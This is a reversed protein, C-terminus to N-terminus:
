RTSEYVIIGAAALARDIADQREYRSRGAFAIERAQQQDVRAAIQSISGEFQAYHPGAWARYHATPTVAEVMRVRTLLYLDGLSLASGEPHNHTVSLLPGDAVPAASHTGCLTVVEGSERMSTSCECEAARRQAPSTAGAADLTVRGGLVAAALLAAAATTRRAGLTQPM